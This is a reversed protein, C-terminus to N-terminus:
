RSLGTWKCNVLFIFEPGGVFKLRLETLTFQPTTQNCIHICASQLGSWFCSTSKLAPCEPYDCGFCVHKDLALQFFPKCDKVLGFLFCLVALIQHREMKTEMKDFLFNCEQRRWFNKDRKRWLNKTCRLSDILSDPIFIFVKEHPNKSLKNSVQMCFM